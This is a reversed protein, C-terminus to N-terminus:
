DGPARPHAQAVQGGSQLKFAQPCLWSLIGAVIFLAPVDGILHGLHAPNNMAQVAMLGAHVISSWITFAILSLHQDPNRSALLLFVGLTAYLAMIMELYESRGHHWTWGSPWVVTLPYFGFVLILGLVVLAISLYKTREQIDV